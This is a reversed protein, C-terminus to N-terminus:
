SLCAIMRDVKRDDFFEICSFILVDICKKCVVNNELDNVDLAGYHQTCNREDGSHTVHSLLHRM